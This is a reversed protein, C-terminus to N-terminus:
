RGPLRKLLESVPTKMKALPAHEDILATKKRLALQTYISTSKIDKHGMLDATSTTPVDDEALETGFLHRLAHPHLQEIPLGLRRGYFQIMQHVAKRTLRRQEGPELHLRPKTSRVSVILAKDPRGDVTITRDIAKLDEHELYVRLLMDAERPVPTWRERHGKESVKVALRPKGGIDTPRIGSENLGVLGSVRLGCGALLSLILADRVGKFTSMDPAWMLREANALTMVHPLKTGTKPHVLDRAPNARAMGRLRAYNYFNRLASIYPVRSRAVIGKHHLWLGSFHELLQQDADLIAVGHEGLFEKLRTMALTYAEITRDSRGRSTSLWSLWADIAEQDTWIRDGM